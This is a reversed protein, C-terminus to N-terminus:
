PRQEILEFHAMENPKALLDAIHGRFEPMDESERWALHAEVTTWEIVMTFTDPDEIGRYIDAKLCESNRLIVEIATGIVGAFTSGHDPKCTVRVIETATV